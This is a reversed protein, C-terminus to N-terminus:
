DVTCQIKVYNKAFILADVLFFPHGGVFFAGMKILIWGFEWCHTLTFRSIGFICDEHRLDRM